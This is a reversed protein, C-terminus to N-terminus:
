LLTHCSAADTFNAKAKYIGPIEWFELRRRIGTGYPNSHHDMVKYSNPLCKVKNSPHKFKFLTDESVELNCKVAQKMGMDYNLLSAMYNGVHDTYLWSLKYFGMGMSFPHYLRVSTVGEPEANTVVDNCKQWFDSAVWTTDHLYVIWNSEIDPREQTLWMLGNNDINCWRRYHYNGDNMDTICEGAVVHICENPVCADQLSQILTPLTREMYGHCTNIVVSIQNKGQKRAEQNM